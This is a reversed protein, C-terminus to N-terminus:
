TEGGFGQICMEGEGYVGRPGGAQNKKFKIAGMNPSYLDNLGESHLNRGRGTV